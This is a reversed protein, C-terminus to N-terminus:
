RLFPTVCCMSSKTFVSVFDSMEVNDVRITEGFGKFEFCCRHSPHILIHGRIEVNADEAEWAHEIGTQDAQEVLVRIRGQVARKVARFTDMDNEFIASVIGLSEQHPSLVRLAWKEDERMCEPFRYQIRAKAIEESWKPAKAEYSGQLLYVRITTSYQSGKEPHLIDNLAPGTHALHVSKGDTSETFWTENLQFYYGFNLFRPPGSQGNSLIGIPSPRDIEALLGRATLSNGPLKRLMVVYDPFLLLLGQEGKTSAKVVYPARLEAVDAVTVLRGQPVFGDPWNAVLGQFAKVTKGNDPSDDQDLACIDSILDKARLFKSMAPHDAPLQNVMNEIFLSYRPLRQVPEILWSRLRQEGTQQVARAFPSDGERLHESLIQSFQSSAQLYQQYPSKFDPLVQLFIKAFADAGTPDRDPVWRVGGDHRQSPHGEGFERMLDCMSHLFETNIDMIETLCSPFLQQISAGRGGVNKSSGRTEDRCYDAAASTALDNLKLVYSQETATLENMERRLSSKQEQTLIRSNSGATPRSPARRLRSTPLFLPMGFSYILETFKGYDIPVSREPTNTAQEELQSSSDIPGPRTIANRPLIVDVDAWSICQQALGNSLHDAIVSSDEIRVMNSALYAAHRSDYTSSCSGERGLNSALNELCEKVAQPIESFYKLLCIALGRCIEDGQEEPPLEHVASYLPSTPSITLRPFSHYGAISFIHAQIRSSNQTSNTTTSPGHFVIVPLNEIMPDRAYFVSLIRCDLTGPSTNIVVMTLSSLM